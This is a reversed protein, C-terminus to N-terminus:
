SSIYEDSAREFHKVTREREIQSRYLLMAEVKLKKMAPTYEVKEGIGTAGWSNKYTDYTITDFLEKAVEGVIKHQINSCDTNPAYVKGTIGLRELKIKLVRKFTLDDLVDPIGLFFVEVGLLDMAERTENRRILLNDKQSYSDTCIIVPPKEKMIIYAGFLVEDDNHPSIFVKSNM